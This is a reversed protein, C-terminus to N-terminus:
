RDRGSVTATPLSLTRMRVATTPAMDPDIRRAFDGAGTPRRRPNPELARLVDPHDPFAEVVTEVSPPNGAVPVQGTAAYLMTLALSYLDSGPTPDGGRWVEPAAYPPTLTSAPGHSARLWASGLDGLVWGQPSAFINEPKVDAHVVGLQHLADLAVALDLGLGVAEVRTLPGNRRIQDHLTGQEYLTSALYPRGSTPAVGAAVVEPLHALGSVGKAIRVEWDFRHQDFGPDGPGYRFAKVAVAAGTPRHIARYVVGTSGEGIRAQLDLDPLDTPAQDTALIASDPLDAHWPDSRRAVGFTSALRDWTRKPRTLPLFATPRPRPTRDLIENAYAWALGADEETAELGSYRVRDVIPGLGAVLWPVGVPLQGAGLRVVEAPTHSGRLGLDLDTFADTVTAWAAHVAAWPDAIRRRRHVTRAPVVKSWVLLLALLTAAAGAVMWPWASPDDPRDVPTVEVPQDDPEPEDPEPEPPDDDALQAQLEQEAATPLPDFPIWGNDVLPTEVWVAIDDQAFSSTAGTATPFGVVVRTPVGSCRALVAYTTVFVELNGRAFPQSVFQEVAAVTQGGPAEPDYIRRTLLWDEIRDLRDLASSSDATLQQAVLAIPESEPCEALRDPFQAVLPAEVAPRETPAVEARYVIPEDRTEALLVGPGPAFRFRGPDEVSRPLGATPVARFSTLGEEITISM